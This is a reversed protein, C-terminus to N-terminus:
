GAWKSARPGREPLRSRIFTQIGRRARELWTHEPRNIGRLLAEDGDIVVEYRYRVRDWSWSFVGLLVVALVAVLIVGLEHIQILLSASRRGMTSAWATAAAAVYLAAIAQPLRATREAPARGGLVAGSLADVAVEYHNRGYRARVRWVPVHVVETREELVEVRPDVAEDDAARDPDLVEGREQLAARDLPLTAAAGAAQLDLRGLPLDPLDVAPVRRVSELIMPKAGARSVSTREVELVPVFLLRPPALRAQERFRAPIRPDNWARRAAAEAAGADVRPLAMRQPAADPHCSALPEGCAPCDVLAPAAATAVAAGCGPCAPLRRLLPSM